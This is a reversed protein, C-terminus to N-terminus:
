AGVGGLTEIFIVQFITPVLSFSIFLQFKMSLGKKWDGILSLINPIQVGKGRGVKSLLGGQEGLPKLGTKWFRNFSSDQFKPWIQKKIFGKNECLKSKRIKDGLTGGM